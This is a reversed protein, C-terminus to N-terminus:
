GLDGEEGHVQPVKQKTRTRTYINKDEGRLFKDVKKIGIPLKGPHFLFQDRMSLARQISGNFWNVM